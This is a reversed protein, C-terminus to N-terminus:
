RVERWGTITYLNSGLGGNYTIEVSGSISNTHVLTEVDEADEVVIQGFLSPSGSFNIQEHVLIQGQASLPDTNDLGGSIELDGGAVVLLQNTEPAIDPSGSIDISKTAILTLNWPDPTGGGFNGPSGSITANGEVYYTGDVASNSNMTWTQSGGDWDWNNCSTKPSATCLVTGASDTMTGSSTLVFDAHQRYDTPDVTPLPVEPAGEIAALSGTYDGSTSITGSISASGGSIVMDGNSHVDGSTGDIDVSGSITLDGNAVLAGLDYPGIVAELTVTTSDKARGTARVILKLNNDTTAVNDEDNTADGDDGLVTADAGRAPDDEDMVAVEYEATSDSAANLAISAGLTIDLVSVDALLTDLGAEVVGPDILRIHDVVVQVGHNLGAEAAARAQASSQHNRAVLTETRGSVGLAAGLASMMMLLLLVGILASGRESRCASACSHPLM